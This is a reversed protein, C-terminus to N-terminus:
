HATGPAQRVFRLDWVRDQSVSFATIRGTPDRRVVVLGFGPALFADKYMLITADPRRKLILSENQRAMVVTTEAEETVYSGALQELEAGNPKTPAVKEYEVVDYRDRLRLRGPSDAELREGDAADAIEFLTGSQAILAPGQDLRIAGADRVLALVRGDPVSRYSGELRSLDDAKLTYAPSPPPALKTRESLYLDAVGYARQTAGANSTNCLVAVSVHQDPYRALHARYGATSGSHDVQRVGRREDIMLGLGYGHGTGGSFTVPRQQEAFFSADGIKPSWFNENWKLLDGVTTLLGGNGHVDEFPMLTHFGGSQEEYGIARNKVIRTHDDRWSTHTMGLPEFLRARTFDAFPMKTVRAVLIAALNYGTNSYSWHTGPTFNLSRQHSVIDLVHAHTYARTTRPWGAISEVNGWDRLGSTHNLMHRITLSAGYDPLEPIYKRVQDDLSLKGERALLLVATATFQKSVSGAEFITDPSIPVDHELDAMGYGRALVQGGDVGVGVACGPTSATFKEFIRDIQPTLDAAAGTILFTIGALIV